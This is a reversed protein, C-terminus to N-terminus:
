IKISESASINMNKIEGNQINIESVIKGFFEPKLVEKLKKRVCALYSDILLENM